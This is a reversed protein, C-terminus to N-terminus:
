RDAGDDAPTTLAADHRAQKWRAAMAVRAAESSPYPLGSGTALREAFQDLAGLVAETHEARNDLERVMEVMLRLYERQNFLMLAMFETLTIQKETSDLYAFWERITRREIGM